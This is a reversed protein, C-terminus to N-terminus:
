KPVELSPLQTLDYTRGQVFATKSTNRYNTCCGSSKYYSGKVEISDITFATTTTPRKEGNPHALYQVVYRYAGLNTNGVRSFPADNNLLVADRAQVATRVLTATEPRTSNTFKKPYRLVIITDLDAAAYAPAFSLRVADALPDDAQCVDNACCGALLAVSLLPLTVRISFRFPLSFAM